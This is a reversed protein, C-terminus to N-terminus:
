NLIKNYAVTDTLIEIAKSVFMDEGFGAEIAGRELYYRSVIENELLHQIQSKFTVFDNSKKESINQQLM